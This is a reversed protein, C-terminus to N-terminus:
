GLMKQLDSIVTNFQERHPKYFVWNKIKKSTVLGANTLIKMHSTVTPQTLGIKDTIFSVCVGDKVLDGDKQPPFYKEPDIIWMMIQLRHKNSLARLVTNTSEINTETYNNM